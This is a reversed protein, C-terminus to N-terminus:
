HGRARSKEVELQNLLDALDAAEDLEVGTCLTGDVCVPEGTSVDFVIWKLDNDDTCIDYFRGCQLGELKRWDSMPASLKDAADIQNLLSAFDDAQEMTLDELVLGAVTAIKNTGNDYVAWYLGDEVPRAEYRALPNDTSM